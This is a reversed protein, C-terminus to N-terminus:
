ICSWIFLLFHTQATRAAHLGLRLERQVRYWPYPKKEERKKFWLNYGKKKEKQCMSDSM